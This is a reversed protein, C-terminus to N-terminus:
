QHRNKKKMAYLIGFISIISLSFIFSSSYGDIEDFTYDGNGDDPSDDGGGGDYEISLVLNYWEGVNDGSIRFVVWVDNDYTIVCQLNGDHTSSDETIPNGSETEVFLHLSSYTECHIDIIVKDSSSLYFKFYDDDYNRLDDYSDPLNLEWANFDYDNDEMWDDNGQNIELEYPAGNNDGWVHIYLNPYYSNSSWSIEIGDDYYYIFYDHPNGYQDTLEFDLVYNYTDYTLFVNVQDQDGVGPLVYWDENLQVLNYYWSWELYYASGLDDNSEAWDDPV